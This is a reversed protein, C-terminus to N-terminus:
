PLSVSDDPGGQGDWSFEPPVNGSEPANTGLGYTPQSYIYLRWDGQLFCNDDKLYINPKIFSIFQKKSTVAFTFPTSSFHTTSKDGMYWSISGGVGLLFGNTPNSSINPLVLANFDKQPKPPKGKKRFLDGIASQECDPHFINEKKKTTDEKEQGFSLNVLLFIIGTVWTFKRPFTNRM